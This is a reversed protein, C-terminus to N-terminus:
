AEAGGDREPIVFEYYAFTEDFVDDHDDIYYPSSTLKANPWTERNWGGTRTMVVIREEEEDIWCDRYREVDLETLGIMALIEATGPTKGFLMNYLSM